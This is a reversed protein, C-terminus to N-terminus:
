NPAVLVPILTRGEPVARLAKGIVAGLSRKPEAARMAHGESASTTLPDGIGIAAYDADVKCYVTGSMAVPVRPQSSRSGGLIIGPGRGDTGSLVGVVRRDYAEVCPCLVESDDMVLVTGADLGGEAEIAFLEACDAGALTLDGAVMLNGRHDLILEDRGQTENRIIFARGGAPDRDNTARLSYEQVGNGRSHITLKPSGNRELRLDGVLRINGDTDLILDDRSKTENRIIFARGGAPDRDNTARLTYHQMGNGRSNLGLSPSGNKALHVNGAVHLPAQPETTGIGVSSPALSLASTAGGDDKVPQAATDSLTQDVQLTLAMHIVELSRDHSM